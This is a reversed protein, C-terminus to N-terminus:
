TQEWPGRRGTRLLQRFYPQGSWDSGQIDTRAPLSGVVVGHNDLVVTGSDFVSLRNAFEKLAPKQGDATFALSGSERGFDSLTNSYQTLEGVLQGASRRSLERNREIVLDQTVRQYAYFAVLAVAILIVATPVFSWAIIKTRLSGWRIGLLV